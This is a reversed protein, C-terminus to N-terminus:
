YHQEFKALYRAQGEHIVTYLIYDLVLALSLVSMNSSRKNPLTHDRSSECRRGNEAVSFHPCILAM